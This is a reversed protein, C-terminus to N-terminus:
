AAHMGSSASCSHGTQAGVRLRTKSACCCCRARAREDSSKKAWSAPPLPPTPPMASSIPRPISQSTGPSGLPGHYGARCDTFIYSGNLNGYQTYMSYQVRYGMQLYTYLQVTATM